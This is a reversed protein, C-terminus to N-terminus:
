SVDVKALAGSGQFAISVEVAGDHNSTISHTTIVVNGSLKVGTSTGSPYLEIAAPNNGISSFLSNQGDDADILFLDASGSFNTLGGLYTRASSSDMSTTEITDTTQEVTFNRVAAVTTVASTDDSFKIVGSEGTYVATLNNAM